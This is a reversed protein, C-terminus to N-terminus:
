ILWFNTGDSTVTVSSYPMSIVRNAAGDVTGSSPTVTVTNLSTDIKKIYFRVGAVPSPLTITVSASAANVLVVQNTSSLTTNTSYTNVALEMISQWSSIKYLELRSTTSNYIIRGDQPSPLADRQTTTYTQVGAAQWVSNMYCELRALTLNYIIQGEQPSSLADRQATTYTALSISEWSSGTYIEHQRSTSNFILLGTAPSVVADRQAATMSPVLAGKATSQFSAVASNDLTTTGVAVDLLKPRGVFPM